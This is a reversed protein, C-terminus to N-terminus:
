RELRATKWAHGFLRSSIKFIRLVFLAKLIFYFDNKMMEFPNEVLYIVYHKKSPSLGVKVFFCLLFLFYIRIEFIVVYSCFSHKTFIVFQKRITKVIIANNCKYQKYIWVCVHMNRAYLVANDLSYKKYLAIIHECKLPGAIGQPHLM